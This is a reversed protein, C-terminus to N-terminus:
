YSWLDGLNIRANQRLTLIKSGGVINLYNNMITKCGFREVFHIIWLHKRVWSTRYHYLMRIRSEKHRTRELYQTRSQHANHILIM